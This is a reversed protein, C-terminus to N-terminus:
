KALKEELILADVFFKAAWNPFAFRQYAGWIPYSGAIAGRIRKDKPSLLQRDKLFNNIKRAAMLFKKEGLIEFFRSFIISIQANGTLCSFNSCQEWNPGFTASFSGDSNMSHLLQYASRLACKIYRDEKLAEGTELVGRITYAITHTYPYAYSELTFGTKNIWGNTHQNRLVWEINKRSADEYIRNKTLVSMEALGWAVRSYYSHPINNYTYSSWSGDKDQVSVLWDSARVAADLYKEDKGHNYLRVLGFVIQGTDFVFKGLRSGLPGGSFSGDNNQISIEWDGMRIARSLYESSGTLRAYNLFTPIIYGTTEPYSPSWGFFLSYRLSVGGDDTADQATSLWEVAARIRDHDFFINQTRVINCHEQLFYTILGKPNM